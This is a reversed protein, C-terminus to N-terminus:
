GVFKLAYSSVTALCLLSCILSASVAFYFRRPHEARTVPTALPLVFVGQRLSYRAANALFVVLFSLFAVCLESMEPSM